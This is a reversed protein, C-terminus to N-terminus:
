GIPEKLPDLLVKGVAFTTLNAMKTIDQCLVRRQGFKTWTLCPNFEVTQPLWKTPPRVVGERRYFNNSKGKKYHGTM